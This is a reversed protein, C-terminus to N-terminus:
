SRGFSGMIRTYCTKQIKRDIEEIIQKQSLIIEQAKKLTINSDTKKYKYKDDPSHVTINLQSVRTHDKDYQHIDIIKNFNELRHQISETGSSNNRWQDRVNFERKEEPLTEEPVILEVVESELTKENTNTLHITMNIKLIKYKKSTTSFM